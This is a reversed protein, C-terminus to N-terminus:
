AQNGQLRAVLEPDGPSFAGEARRPSAPKGKEGKIPTETKKPPDKTLKAPASKVFAFFYVSVVILYAFITVVALAPGHTACLNPKGGDYDALNPDCSGDFKAESIGAWILIGLLHSLFAIVPYVYGLVRIKACCGKELLLFVVSVLWITLFLLSLMEFFFYASGASGLDKFASCFSKTVTSFDCSGSNKLSNYADNDFGGGCGICAILDCSTCTVVGGEWQTSSKGHKVWKPTALCSIMLIYLFSQMALVVFWWFRVKLCLIPDDLGIDLYNAPPAPGRGELQQSSLASDDQKQGRPEM